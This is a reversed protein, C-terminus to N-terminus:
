DAAHSASEGCARLVCDICEERTPCDCRSLGRYLLRRMGEARHMLADVDEIKRRALARWREPLPEATADAPGFLAVIEALTFGLSQAVRIFALQDLVPQRYRRQGGVRDAPPLLGVSEYYRIASTAVGAREAV